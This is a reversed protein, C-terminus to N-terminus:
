FMRIDKFKVINKNGGGNKFSITIVQNMYSVIVKNPLQDILPKWWLFIRAIGSEQCGMVLFCKLQIGVTRNGVTRAEYHVLNM